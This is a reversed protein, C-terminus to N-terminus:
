CIRNIYPGFCKHLNRVEGFAQCVLLPKHCDTPKSKRLQLHLHRFRLNHPTYYLYIKLQNIRLGSVNNIWRLYPFYKIKSVNTSHAAYQTYYYNYYLPYIITRQTYPTGTRAIDIHRLALIIHM